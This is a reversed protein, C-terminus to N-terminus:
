KAIKKIKAATQTASDKVQEVIRKGKAVTEDAAGQAELDRDGTVKGVTKKAKGAVEDAAHSIKEKIGM